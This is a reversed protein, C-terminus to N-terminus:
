RDEPLYALRGCSRCFVYKGMNLEVLLNPSYTSFCVTCAKNEVPALATAGHSRVLRDYAQRVTTPLTSEATKLAAELKEREAKLGPEREAVEASVRNEEAVAEDRAAEAEAIKTQMADVTEYAELIEDELVSNAMTDAEIQSKIIDFERNSTATNLKAKLDLIKGENTKMQLSKQDAAMKLQTLEEKLSEIEQERQEVINRRAQIQKPGRALQNCVEELQLHLQHLERLDAAATSM